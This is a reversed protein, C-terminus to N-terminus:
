SQMESTLGKRAHLNHWDFVLAQVSILAQVLRETLAFILSTKKFKM